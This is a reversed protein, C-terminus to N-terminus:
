LVASHFNKEMHVRHPLNQVRQAGDEEDGFDRGCLFVCIDFVGLAVVVGSSVDVGPLSEANRHGVMGQVEAFGFTLERWPADHKCRDAPQM